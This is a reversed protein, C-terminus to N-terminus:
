HLFKVGYKSFANFHIRVHDKSYLLPYKEIIERIHKFENVLMQRRDAFSKVMLVRVIDKKRREQSLASQSKLTECHHAISYEDEREILPPLFNPIGWAHNIKKRAPGTSEKDSKRKGYISRKQIIEPIELKCRFRHNKYYTVM